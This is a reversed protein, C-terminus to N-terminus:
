IMVADSLMTTAGEAAGGWVEGDGDFDGDFDGGVDGNWELQEEEGESEEDDTFLDENVPELVRLACMTVARLASASLIPKDGAPTVTAAPLVALFCQLFSCHPQPAEHLGLHYPEAAAM